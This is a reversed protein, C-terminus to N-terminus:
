LAPINYVDVAVKRTTEYVYDAETRMVDYFMSDDSLDEVVMFKCMYNLNTKFFSLCQEQTLLQDVLAGKSCDKNAQELKNDNISYIKFGYQDTQGTYHFDCDGALNNEGALNINPPLYLSLDELEKLSGFWDDNNTLTVGLFYPVNESFPQSDFTGIGLNIPGQTAVSRVTRDSKLLPDKINYYVFPDVGKSILYDANNKSLFYANHMAKTSFDYDVYVKAIRTVKIKSLDEIVVGGPFVCTVTFTQPIDKYVKISDGSVGSIEAKVDGEYGEMSCRVGAELDNDSTEATVIGRLMIDNGSFARGGVQELSVIKVGLDRRISDEEIDSQFGYAATAKEPSLAISVFESLGLKTAGAVGTEELGVGAHKLVSAGGGARYFYNYAFLSGLIVGSIIILGVLTLFIFKLVRGIFRAVVGRGAAIEAPYRLIKGAGSAVRRAGAGVDAAAIDRAKEKIAGPASGIKKFTPFLEKKDAM